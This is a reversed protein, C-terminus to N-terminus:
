AYNVSFQCKFDDPLHGHAVDDLCREQYFAMIFSSGTAIAYAYGTAFDETTDKYHEWVGPSKQYVSQHIWNSATRVHTYAIPEHTTSLANYKAFAEAIGIGEMASVAIVDKARWTRKMKAIQKSSSSSARKSAAAGM